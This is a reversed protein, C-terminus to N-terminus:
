RLLVMKRSQKFGGVTLSYYYIGSTLASADFNVAYQGAPKHAELLAAVEQGLLNYVKLTVFGSQSLAFEITTAPNFPNPYNQKLHFHTPQINDFTEIATIIGEAYGLRDGGGIGRGNYWM